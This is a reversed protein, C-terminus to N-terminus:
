PLARRRPQCEASEPPIALYDHCDYQRLSNILQLRTSFFLPVPRVTAHLAPPLDNIPLRRTRRVARIRITVIVACLDLRVNCVSLLTFILQLINLSLLVRRIHM